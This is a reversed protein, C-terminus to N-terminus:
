VVVQVIDNRGSICSGGMCLSDGGGGCGSCLWWYAVVVVVMVVVVVVEGGICVGGGYVCLFFKNIAIRCCDSKKKCKM